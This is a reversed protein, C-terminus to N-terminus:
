KFLAIFRPNKWLSKLDRQTRAKRLLKRARKNRRKKLELLANIADDNKGDPRHTYPRLTGSPYLTMLCQGHGHRGLSSSGAGFRIWMFRTPRLTRSATVQGAPTVHRHLAEQWGARGPTHIRVGVPM